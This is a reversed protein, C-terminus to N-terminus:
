QFAGFPFEPVTVLVDKARPAGVPAAEPVEVAEAVPDDGGVALEPALGVAEPEDDVVGWCCETPEAIVEEDIEVWANAIETRMV